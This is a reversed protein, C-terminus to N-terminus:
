VSVPVVPVSAVVTATTGAFFARFTVFCAFGSSSGTAFAMMSLANADSSKLLGSDEGEDFIVLAGSAGFFCVTLVYWDLCDPWDLDPWDLNLM